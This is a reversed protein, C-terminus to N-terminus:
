RVKRLPHQVYLLSAARPHIQASEGYRPLDPLALLADLVLAVDSVSQVLLFTNGDYQVFVFRGDLTNRPTVVLAVDLVSQVLLFTNGDYQVFVFRGNLTNRRTVVLAM